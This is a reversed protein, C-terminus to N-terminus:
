PEGQKLKRLKEQADDLEKHLERIEKELREIDAAHRQDPSLTECRSQVAALAEALQRRHLMQGKSRALEMDREIAAQEVNCETKDVQGKQQAIAPGALTLAIALNCFKARM